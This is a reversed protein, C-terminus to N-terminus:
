TPKRSPISSVGPKLLGRRTTMSFTWQFELSQSTEATTPTIFKSSRHFKRLAGGCKTAWLDLLLPKGKFSSLPVSKGYADLLVFDPAPKRASQPEVAVRIDAAHALSFAGLCIILTRM